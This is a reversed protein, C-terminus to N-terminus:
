NSAMGHAPSACAPTDELLPALDNDDALVDAIDAVPADLDFISRVRQVIPFISTTSAGFLTLALGGNAADDRLMIAAVGDDHAITRLYADRTVAEVGPIARAAFFELLQRWRFPERYSLRVTLASADLDPEHSRSRRLERPARGYVKRFTDNFRRM